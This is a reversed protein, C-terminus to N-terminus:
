GPAVVLYQTAIRLSGAGAPYRSKRLTKRHLSRLNIYKFTNEKESFHKVTGAAASVKVIGYCLM